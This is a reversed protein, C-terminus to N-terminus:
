NIYSTPTDPKQYPTGYDKQPLLVHKIYHFVAEEGQEALMHLLEELLERSDEHLIHYQKGREYYELASADTYKEKQYNKCASVRDIFMEVVYKLPMKMGTIGKKEGAGYDIWYELHHKNRGKHHLWAQSYGKELREINNPSLNGQFYKCGMLFETPSYKSLDHLLGQKYLGVKFCGKMVLMKHHNITKFHQWVKM